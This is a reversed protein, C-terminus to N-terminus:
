MIARLDAPMGDYKTKNLSIELIESPQHYSRAMLIKRADPLGYVTDSTTNNFEAADITGRDLASAVQSGAVSIVSAGLGEYIGTALGVTRFKMGKFDDPSKIEDKFWGLPQCQMPMHLFSVVNLKLKRQVLDQYLEFGGGYYFWSLWQQGNLGMM